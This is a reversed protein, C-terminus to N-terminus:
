AAPIKIDFQTGKNNSKNLSIYGNIKDIGSKAAYLGLGVGKSNEDGKKFMEFILDRADPNIGIGNDEFSLIIYKDTRHGTIKIIPTDKNLISNFQISNKFLESLVMTLIEGDVQAILNPQTDCILKIGKELLEEKYKDSLSHILPDVEIREIIIKKNKIEYVHNISKITNYLKNTTDNIMYLYGLANNDSIEKVALNNLGILTTLPGQIDHSSRYLFSRLEENVKQLESTREEVKVNLEINKQEIALKAVALKNNNEKILENQTNIEENRDALMEKHLEEKHFSAKVYSFLLFTFPLITILALAINRLLRIRAALIFEGFIQDVQLLAVVEGNSNKIPSFASLWKGNESDYVDLTGGQKMNKLLTDPFKQYSHRYYPYQSSTGIFEFENKYKNFVMTYVPSNLGNILRVNELTNHLRNYLDDETNTTIGNKFQYNNSLQEHLDGDIMFSATNSISKLRELVAKKSLNIESFYSYIIFYVVLIYISSFMLTMLRNSKKKAKHKPSFIM